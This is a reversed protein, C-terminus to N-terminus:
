QTARGTFQSSSIRRAIRIWSPFQTPINAPIVVLAMNRVFTCANWSRRSLSMTSPTSLSQLRGGVQTAQQMAQRTLRTQMLRKLVRMRLRNSEPGEGPSRPKPSPRQKPPQSTKPPESQHPKPEPPESQHPKPEPPGSQHPNLKKAQNLRLQLHMLQTLQTLPPKQKRNKAADNGQRHLLSTMNM